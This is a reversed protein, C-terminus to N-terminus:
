AYDNEIDGEPDLEEEEELVELGRASPNIHGLIRSAATEPKKTNPSLGVGLTEALAKLQELNYEKVLEEVTKNKLKEVLGGNPHQEEKATVEKEKKKFLNQSKFKPVEVAVALEKTGSENGVKAGLKKFSGGQNFNNTQLNTQLAMNPDAAGIASRIFAKCQILKPDSNDGILELAAKLLQATEQHISM